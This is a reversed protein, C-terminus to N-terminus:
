YDWYDIYEKSAYKINYMDVCKDDTCATYNHVKDVKYILSM